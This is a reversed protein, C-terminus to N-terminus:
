SKKEEVALGSPGGPVVVVRDKDEIRARFKRGSKANRITIVAGKRGSEEAIGQAEVRANRVQILVQVTDGQGVENAPALMTETLVSGSEITRTPIMGIAQAIDTLETERSLPGVYTETRLQGASIPEGVRLTGAAAVRPEKITIRVRAWTSFRRNSAYAIYGRWIVPADSFASLGSLPFVLEGAPAPALSQGIVEIQPNRNGLAKKMAALMSERSPVALSWEFCADESIEGELHNARAIRRLEAPHFIRQLGPAPAFGVELNPALASFLPVAAALDRAYIRDSNIVHCALPQIATALLFALIM